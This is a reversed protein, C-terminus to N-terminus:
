RGTVTHSMSAMRQLYRPPWGAVIEAPLPEIQQRSDPRTKFVHRVHVHCYNPEAHLLAYPVPLYCHEGLQSRWGGLANPLYRWPAGRRLARPHPDLLLQGTRRNCLRPNIVHQLPDCAHWCEFLIAEQGPKARQLLDVTTPLFFEDPDCLLLWDCNQEAARRHMEDLLYNRASLEDFLPGQGFDRSLKVVRDTHQPEHQGTTDLILAQQVWPYGLMTQLSLELLDWESGCLYGLCVRPM